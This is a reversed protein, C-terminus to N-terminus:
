RGLEDQNPLIVVFNNSQNRKSKTPFRNMQKMLYLFAYFREAKSLNLFTTRQLQKSKEKTQFKIEM